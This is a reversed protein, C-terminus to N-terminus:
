LSITETKVIFNNLIKSIYPTKKFAGSRIKNQSQIGGGSRSNESDINLYRGLGSLGTEIGKLWSRGSAWPLPTSDFLEQKSPYFIRFDVVGGKIKIFRIETEELMRRVVETPRDNKEFGIFGFLSGHSVFQSSDASVGDQLERTVPHKDFESLMEEKLVSFKKFLSPEVKPRVFKGTQKYAIDVAGQPVVVKSM